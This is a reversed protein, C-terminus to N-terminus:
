ICQTYFVKMYISFAGQKRPTGDKKLRSGAGELCLSGSCKGCGFKGVDISKSHRGYRSSCGICVYWYKYNIEYSHCTTVKLDHYVEEVRRAWKKFVPGHPPNNNHDIIWAAAHTMEHVLTTRLKEDTDLIKSSLEISCTYEFGTPAKTRITVTRGATKSLSNLWKIEM